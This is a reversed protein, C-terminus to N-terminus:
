YEKAQSNIRECSTRQTHMAQYLPGERDLTIRM